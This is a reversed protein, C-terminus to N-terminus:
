GRNPPLRENKQLSMSALHGIGHDLGGTGRIDSGERVPRAKNSPSLAEIAIIVRSSDAVSIIFVLEFTECKIEMLQKFLLVPYKGYLETYHWRCLIWVSSVGESMSLKLKAALSLSANAV